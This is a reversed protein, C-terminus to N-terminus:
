MYPVLCPVPCVTASFANSWFMGWRCVMEFEGEALAELVELLSISQKHVNIVSSYYPSGNIDHPSQSLVEAFWGINLKLIAITSADSILPLFFYRRMSLAKTAKVSCSQFLLGPSTDKQELATSTLLPPVEVSEIRRVLRCIIDYDTGNGLAVELVQPLITHAFRHM